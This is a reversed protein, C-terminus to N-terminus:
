TTPAVYGATKQWAEYATFQAAKIETESAGEAPKNTKWLQTAYATFTLKPTGNEEVIDMMEKTVSVKVKVENNRLVKITRDATIDKSPMTQVYVGTVVNGADDKLQEWNNPDVEYDLFDSFAFMRPMTEGEPTFSVGQEEVKIFVWCDESNANVTVVPDKEITWGPIMQYEDGTTEELKINIDSDTFTNVVPDTDDTLWALTGGVAVGFAMVCAMLLAIKKKM